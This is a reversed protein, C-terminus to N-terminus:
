VKSTKYWSCRCNSTRRVGCFPMSIHSISHRGVYFSADMFVLLYSRGSNLGVRIQIYGLSLENEDLPVENAAKVADIAFEALRKAHDDEQDEVLNTVALYADRHFHLPPKQYQTIHM